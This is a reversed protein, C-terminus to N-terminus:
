EYGVPMFELKLDDVYIKNKGTYWVYVKYNGDVPISRDIVDTHALQFWEGSQYETETDKSVVYKYVKHEPDDISVVLLIQGKENPSPNLICASARLSINSIGPLNRLKGEASPSYINDPTLRISHKGSNSFETSVNKTQGETLGSEFDNLYFQRYIARTTDRPAKMFVALKYNERGFVTFNELPTFVNMLKLNDNKMLSDFSLRGEYGAFQADWILLEGSKLMNAPDINEYNYIKFCKQQDGPDIEMFFPYAPDTYFARKKSYPTTKMWTTLHQMVEFNNQPRMPIKRWTFPKYIVLILIFAAFVISLLRNFKVKEMLWEFGLVAIVSSLPLVCAIFRNSGLVGMIGRWWLFSQALIFGFLAPIILFYLTVYRIDRLKKLGNKLNLVIAILGTVCMIIMPYDLIQHMHRFYFWFPGSGYLESGGSSYPMKTFFWLLDHYVPWGAVSFVVFGTLLFPLARFQRMWVLVPIFLVVFMMGETRAFPIFSIAVASWIFRECIFLYIAWILVLSFFIETLSTYMVFLYTPTFVTFIIATWANRMKMKLAILYALWASLLGSLLNFAISGTYGFQALPASFITYLPKGWHNLFNEPYKFAYRAIQYHTISDTEGSIGTAFWQLVALVVAIILLLIFVPTKNKFNM